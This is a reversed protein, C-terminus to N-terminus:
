KGRSNALHGSKGELRGAVDWVAALAWLRKYPSLDGYSVVKVLDWLCGILYGKELTPQLEGEQSSLYNAFANDCWAAAPCADADLPGPTVSCFSGEIWRGFANVVWDRGQEHDTLRIRCLVSLRGVDYGIPWQGLRSMDILAIDGPRPIVINGPNLDGHQTVTLLSGTRQLLVDWGDVLSMLHNSLDEASPILEPWQGDRELVAGLGSLFGASQAVRGRDVSNLPFRGIAPVEGFQADAYHLIELSVIADLSDRTESSWPERKLVEYLSDGQIEAQKYYYGLNEPLVRCIGDTPAIASALRGLEGLKELATLEDSITRKDRAVKLILRQPTSGKTGSVALVFAGSHGSTLARLSVGKWDAAVSQVLYELARDGLAVRALRMGISDVIDYSAPLLKKFRVAVSIVNRVYDVQETTQEFGIYKQKDLLGDFTERFGLKTEAMTGFQTHAILVSNPRLVRLDRASALGPMVQSWDASLLALDVILTWDGSDDTGQHVQEWAENWDSFTNGPSVAASPFANLLLKEIRRLDAPNDEIIFFKM